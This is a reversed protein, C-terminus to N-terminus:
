QCTDGDGPPIRTGAGLWCTGGGSGNRPGAFSFPEPVTSRRKTGENVVMRLAKVGRWDQSVAVSACVLFSVDTGYTLMGAFGFVTESLLGFSMGTHVRVGDSHLSASM